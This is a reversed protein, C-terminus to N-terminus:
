GAFLASQLMEMSSWVMIDTRPSSNAMAASFRMNGMARLLFYADRELLTPQPQELVHEITRFENLTGREDTYLRLTQTQADLGGRIGRTRVVARCRDSREM